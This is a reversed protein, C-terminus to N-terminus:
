LAEEDMKNKPHCFYSLIKAAGVVQSSALDNSTDLDSQVCNHQDYKETKVIFKLAM